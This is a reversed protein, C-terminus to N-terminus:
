EDGEWVGERGQRRGDERMGQGGCRGRRMGGAGCEGCTEGRVEESEWEWAGADWQAWKVAM